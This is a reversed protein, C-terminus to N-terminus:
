PLGLEGMENSSERQGIEKRNAETVRSQLKDQCYARASDRIMREDESLQDELLFMDDWVAPAPKSLAQEPTM